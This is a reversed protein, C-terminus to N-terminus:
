FTHYFGAGQHWRGASRMLSIKLHDGQRNIYGLGLQGASIVEKSLGKNMFLSTFGEGGIYFQRKQKPTKTIIQVNWLRGIIQNQHVTDTTRVTVDATKFSDEQVRMSYYNNIIAQTDVKAPVEKVVQFPVFILSDKGKIIRAPITDGPLYIKKTKPKSTDELYQTDRLVKIEQPPCTRALRPIRCQTLYLIYLSLALIILATTTLQLSKM